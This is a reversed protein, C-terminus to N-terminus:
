GYAVGAPHYGLDISIGRACALVKEVTEAEREKSYATMAQAVGVAAVVQERAAWVPAAVGWVGEIAENREVVFGAERVKGLRELFADLDTISDQTYAILPFRELDHRVEEEDRFALLAMGLMGFHPPDRRWGIDSAIRVPGTAEKKDLYVLADDILAGLMVTVQLEERLRNLHPSASRRLSVSALVAGGLTLFITGLRYRGDAPDLVLYKHYELTSLIRFVTPKSLGSRRTIEDLSLKSDQASFLNLVTIAREIARINYRNDSQGSRSTTGQQTM